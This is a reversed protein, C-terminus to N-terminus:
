IFAKIFFYSTIVLIIISLLNYTKNNSLALVICMFSLVAMFLVHFADLGTGRYNRYIENIAPPYEDDYWMAFILLWIYLLPTRWLLLVMYSLIRRSKM